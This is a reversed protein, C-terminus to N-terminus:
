AELAMKALKVAGEKSKTMCMFGSNHCFTADNVGTVRVLDNDRLGRWNEPLPKRSEYTGKSKNIAVVQWSEQGDEYSTEKRFVAYVPEPFNILTYTILVRGYVNEEDLIILRKDETKKYIGRAINEAEIWDKTKEIERKLLGRAFSVAELFKKDIDVDKLEKWTPEFSNVIQHVDYTMVGTFLEQYTNVGNDGADLYQVIKKEIAEAIEKSGSVEVGFKKWVLGFSAYPIGNERKGAGEKQHHDFLNKNPDYVMGVDVVYDGTKIIDEDRTRIIEAKKDGLYLLLTAVAFVDDTHFGSDHTIIRKKNM